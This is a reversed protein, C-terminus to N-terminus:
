GASNQLSTVNELWYRARRHIETEVPNGRNRDERHIDTHIDSHIYTRIYTHGSAVM